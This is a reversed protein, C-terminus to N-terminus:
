NEARNKRASVFATGTAIAIIALGLLTLLVMGQTGTMPLNPLLGTGAEDASLNEITVIRGGETVEVVQGEAYDESIEFGVPAVTETVLYSGVALRQVVQGADGATTVTKVTAGEVPNGSEDVPTITFTAGELPEDQSDVKNITLDVFQTVTPTDESDNEDSTTPVTADNVTVDAQNSLTEAGDAVVANITVVITDNAQLAALNDGTFDVTVVNDTVTTVGTVEAGNRTVTVDAASVEEVGDPLDDVITYKSFAENDGPEPLTQTIEWVIADGPFYTLSDDTLTKVPKNENTLVTNKPFVNVDYIWEGDQSMPISVLFDAAKNAVVVPEGNALAGETGTESVKYVGVELGTASASGDAATTIEVAASEDVPASAATLGELADWGANTTLNIGTVPTVTFTVGELPTGTVGEASGISGEGETPNQYKHVTISGLRSTDINGEAAQAVLATGGIGLLSLAGAALAAVTKRVRSQNGVM